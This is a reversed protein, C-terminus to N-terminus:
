RAEPQSITAYNTTSSQRVATSSSSAAEGRLIRAYYYDPKSPRTIESQTSQLMLVVSRTNPRSDVQEQVCLLAVHISRLVENGVLSDDVYTSDVVELGKGDTWQSWVYDLLSDGPHRLCYDINRTGTIIELLMVGYSFVDSKESMMRHVAYEESMYGYTGAPRDMEAETMGNELMQALGFDSIKPTMDQDLLVNSPKLDKHLIPPTTFNHLYCLGEAIGKAIKFRQEWHLLRSQTKDFLYRSLCSNRLYEYILIKEGAEYCCGELRVLNVHLVRLILRVENVFETMGQSSRAKLRKVAIEKGDLLTGKYVTGFGGQGIINANSFHDTAEAVVDFAVFQFRDPGAIETMAINTQISGQTKSKHKKWYCFGVFCFLSLGALVAGVILGIIWSDLGKGENKTEDELLDKASVRVYLDKGGITYNRMDELDGSWRVCALRGKEVQMHAFATCGCDRYCTEECDKFDMEMDLIANKTDPLKMNKIPFFGDGGCTLPTRRKCYANSYGGVLYFGKLCYCLEDEVQSHMFCFSNSGCIHYNDCPHSISSWEFVWELKEPIWTFLKVDGSEWGLTLRSNVPGKMVFTSDSDQALESITGFGYGDWPDSRYMCKSADTRCVFLEFLGSQNRLQFDYMGKSPQFQTLWSRLIKPTGKMGLKMGPVLTDTPFDFSQWLFGNKSPSRLVFNGNDLLEAVTGVGQGSVNTSWVPNNEHNFLVLNSKSIKLTGKPGILPTDRNAVWLCTKEADGKYWIALYWGEGQNQFFGLEMIGGPSVLTKHESLTLVVSSSSSDTQLVFAVFFFCLIVCVVRMEVMDFGFEREGRM